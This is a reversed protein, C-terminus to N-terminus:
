STDEPPPRLYGPPYEDRWGVREEPRYVLYMEIAVDLKQLGHWLVEPGPHGDAKRGQFGGKIAIWRTAEQLTPPTAPLVTTKHFWSYLAQWEPDQFFLTCPADPDMRGLMTLYYIRWAVVLDIALCNELRAVCGLQREEIQCGTKLTRHFVEIGWRAGYWRVREQAEALTTTPVNTLLLWDVGEVGAPPATERLSVAWLALPGDKLAQPPKLTVPGCRLALEATRAAQAGRRPLALALRGAVELGGMYDWLPTLQQDTMVQRQRGRNARVLLRPRAPDRALAFLEFLDAERDGISVLTTQPVRPALDVLTQYAALWKGSERVEPERRCHHEAPDRAWCEASVVGLPVGDPTFAQSNHLLLGVPGGATKSGIPGLGATDPHGTYNLSTTDQPVLVLPQDRMREIVAERHAGLVLQMNIRPNRFFRYAAVTRARDACRRTLSRSQADGWFDEALHYLRQKLRADWVQLGGFEAEAWHAPTQPREAPRRAPGQRLQRRADDVLPRVWLAKPVGDRRGASQGICQWGAAAYCIGAHDPHVFTELLLPRVGYRAEWDAPLRRALQGLLHSALHTVRVGPLILFRANAVVRALNGRRTAENWGIWQDRDQLAFSASQCAAAGLYGQPSHFLYRLQAGCLPKDGLPHQAMLQHYRDREAATTVVVLDIPGLTSLDGTVDAMLAPEATAPRPGAPFPTAAPLIVAGRRHLEALARRASGLCRQGQANTWNLWDCVREALARRSLTPEQRVADLIRERVPTDFWQGCVRM